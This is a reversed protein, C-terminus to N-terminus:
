KEKGPTTGFHSASVGFIKAWPRFVAMCLAAGALACGFWVAITTQWGFNQAVAAIGWISVSSGVYVFSNIIGSILAVNNYREFRKPVLGILVFNAAHMGACILALLIM